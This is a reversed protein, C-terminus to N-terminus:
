TRLRGALAVGLAAVGAMVLDVMTLAVSVRGGHSTVAALLVGGTGILTASGLSDCIQLAAGNAGREDAPSLQLVLVSVSAMSLGM